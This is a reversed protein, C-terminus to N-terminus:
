QPKHWVTAFNNDYWLNNYGMGKMTDCIKQINVNYHMPMNENEGSLDIILILVGGPNMYKDLEYLYRIQTEPDLHEWVADSFIIDFTKDFKFTDQPILITDIGLNYEKFRWLAFDSIYGKVDVYTVTKGTYEKIVETFVGLGGGFEMFESGPHDKIMEMLGPLFKHMKNVPGVKNWNAGLLDYIYTQSSEYFDFVTERQHFDETNIQQFNTIRRKVEELPIGSFRCFDHVIEGNLLEPPEPNVKSYDIM